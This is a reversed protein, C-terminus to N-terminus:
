FKKNKGLKPVNTKIEIQEDVTTINHKSARFFETCM